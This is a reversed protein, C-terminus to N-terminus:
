IAWVGSEDPKTWDIPPAPIIREPLKLGHLAAFRVGHKRCARRHAIRSHERHWDEPPLAFALYGCLFEARLGCNKAACKGGDVAQISYGVPGPGTM